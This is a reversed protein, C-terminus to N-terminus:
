KTWKHVNDIVLPPKSALSWQKVALQTHVVKGRECLWILLLAARISVVKMSVLVYWSINAVSLACLNEGLLSTCCVHMSGYTKNYQCTSQVPSMPKVEIQINVQAKAQVLLRVIDVHGKFCAMVLPTWGVQIHVIIIHQQTNYLGQLRAAHM